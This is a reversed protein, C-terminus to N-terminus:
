DGKIGYLSFVATSAFNGGIIFNLSTIATTSIYLGSFLDIEGAGNRDMGSFIRVTKNRTTASYDQIDVIGVTGESTRVGEVEQSVKIENTSANGKASASTGNGYLLHRAYSTGGAGNTTMSITWGATTSFALFRIQLHKYTSPISTFSITGSSGTGTATAISEFAGPPAGLKSSAIIGLIPSM